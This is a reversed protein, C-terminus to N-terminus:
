EFSLEALLPAHDSLAKWPANKLCQATKISLGRYYIRDLRLYPWWVPFTRAHSGEIEEFAEQVGLSHRLVMSAKNRWDNFDGGIVLPEGEPVHFGIRSCLQQLQLTREAEILGLHVCIVHLRRSKCVSGEPLEVIGHLLGRSELKNTSININEFHIFPYKSLIANGHHGASYVANKGYAYHPWLEHALYEFQPQSPWNEYKKRHDGHFGQVEQLFLLDPSVRRLATRIKGLVFKQNFVSFGKHINYSFAVLKNKELASSWAELVL